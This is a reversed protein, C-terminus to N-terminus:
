SSTWGDLRPHREHRGVRRRRAVRGGSHQHDRGGVVFGAVEFRCDGRHEGCRRLDVDEDDVVRTGVAGALDGVPEGGVGPHGHQVPRAFVAEPARVDRTECESQLAAVVHDHLHIGVARM